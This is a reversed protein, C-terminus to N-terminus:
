RTTELRIGCHMGALTIAGGPIKKALAEALDEQILPAGRVDGVAELIDECRLTEHSRIIVEYYNTEGSHPCVVHVTCTYTNM